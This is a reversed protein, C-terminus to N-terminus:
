RSNHHEPFSPPLTFRIPLNIRVPVNIGKQSGPIWDPSKKLIRLAEKSLEPHPSRLVNLDSLKGNERVVFQVYVKGEIGEIKCLEPYRMETSLFKQLAAEAGPFQPMREVVTYISEEVFTNLIDTQTFAFNYSHLLLLHILLVRM